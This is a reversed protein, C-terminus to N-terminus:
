QQVPAAVGSSSAIATGTRRAMEADLAQYFESYPEAFKVLQGDKFSTGFIGRSKAENVSLNLKVTSQGSGVEEVLFSAHQTKKKKGLGWIINFFAKGKAETEGSITGADKSAAINLYGLSQMTSIVAPFAVSMPASYTRTQAAILAPQSLEVPKQEKPAAVAPSFAIAVGIAAVALKRM